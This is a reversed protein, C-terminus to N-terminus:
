KGMASRLVGFAAGDACFQGSRSKFLAGLAVGAHFWKGETFIVWFVTTM